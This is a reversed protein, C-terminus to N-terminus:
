ASNLLNWNLTKRRKSRNSYWPKLTWDTRSNIWLQLFFLQIWIKRLPILAIQFPFLKMWSKFKPWLTIYQGEVSGDILLHVQTFLRFFLPLLHACLCNYLWTWLRNSNSYLDTPSLIGFQSGAASLPNQARLSGCNLLGALILFFTSSNDSSSPTLIYCDTGM